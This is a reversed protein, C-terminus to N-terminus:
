TLTSIVQTSSGREERLDEHLNRVLAKLILEFAFAAYVLITVWM